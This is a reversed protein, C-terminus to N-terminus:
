VTLGPGTFNPHTYAHRVYYFIVTSPTRLNVAIWTGASDQPTAFLATRAEMSNLLSVMDQLAQGDPEAWGVSEFLEEAFTHYTALDNRGQMRATIVM